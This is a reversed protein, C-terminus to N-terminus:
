KQITSTLTDLSEISYEAVDLKLQSSIGLRNYNLGWFINFFLYIWLALHLIKKILVWGLFKKETRRALIKTYKVAKLFLYVVAATYLLDGISFPVWGFFLRLVRSVYPYFGYTYYKEVWAENLSLLKVFVTLGILVLLVKDRLLSKFM